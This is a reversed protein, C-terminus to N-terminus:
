LVKKDEEEIRELTGKKATSSITKEGSFAIGVFMGAVHGIYAGV